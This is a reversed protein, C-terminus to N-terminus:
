VPYNGGRKPSVNNISGPRPITPFNDRTFATRKRYSESPARPTLAPRVDRVSPARPTLAPRVDRLALLRLAHPGRLLLLLERTLDERPDEFFHPVLVSPAPRRASHHMVLCRVEDCGPALAERAAECLSEAGCLQLAPESIRACITAPQRPAEAVDIRMLRRDAMDAMAEIVAEWARRQILCM